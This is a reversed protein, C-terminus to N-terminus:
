ADKAAHLIAPNVPPENTRPEEFAIAAPKVGAYLCSDPPASRNM